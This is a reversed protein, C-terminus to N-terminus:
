LPVNTAVVPTFTLRISEPGERPSPCDGQRCCVHLEGISVSIPLLLKTRRKTSVGKPGARYQVPIGLEYDVHACMRHEVCVYM